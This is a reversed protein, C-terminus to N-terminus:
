IDVRRETSQKVLMGYSAMFLCFIGNKWPKLGKTPDELNQIKSRSEDKRFNKGGRRSTHQGM